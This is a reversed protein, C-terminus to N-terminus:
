KRNVKIVTGDAEVRYDYAEVIATALYYVARYLHDQAKPTLVESTCGAQLIKAALKLQGCMQNHQHARKSNAHM